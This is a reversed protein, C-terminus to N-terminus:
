TGGRATTRRGGHGGRNSGHVFSLRGSRGACSRWRALEAPHARDCTATPDLVRLRERSSSLGTRRSRLERCVEYGDPGAGLSVDLLMVDFRGTTARDVAARGDSVAMVRHGDREFLRRIQERLESEDDVVLIDLPEAVAVVYRRQPPGM